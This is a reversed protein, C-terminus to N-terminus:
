VLALPLLKFFEHALEGSHAVYDLHFVGLRLAPPGSHVYRAIQLKPLQKGFGNDLHVWPGNGFYRNVISCRTSYIEETASLTTMTKQFLGTIM